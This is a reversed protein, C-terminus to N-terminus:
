EPTIMGSGPLSDILSQYLTVVTTDPVLVDRFRALRGNLHDTSPSLDNLARDLVERLFAALSVGFWGHFSAYTLSLEGGVFQLYSQRLAEISRDEGM